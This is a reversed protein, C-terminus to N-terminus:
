LTSFRNKFILIYFPTNECTKPRSQMCITNFISLEADTLVLHRYVQTFICSKNM